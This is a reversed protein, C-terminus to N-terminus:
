DWSHTPHPAPLEEHEPAPTPPETAIRTVSAIALAAAELTQAVEQGDFRPNPIM